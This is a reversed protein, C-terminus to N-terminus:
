INQSSINSVPLILQFYIEYINHISLLLINWYKTNVCMKSFRAWISYILKSINIKNIKKKKWEFAITKCNIPQSGKTKSYM